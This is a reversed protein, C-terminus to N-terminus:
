IIKLGAQLREFHAYVDPDRLKLVDFSYHLAAASDIISKAYKEKYDLLIQFAFCQVKIAQDRSVQNPLKGRSHAAPNRSTDYMQIYFQIYSIGELEFPSDPDLKLSESWRRRLNVESKGPSKPQGLIGEVCKTAEVMASNFDSIATTVQWPEPEPNLHMREHGPEGFACYVCFGHVQFSATLDQLAVYFKEDRLLLELIPLLPPVQRHRLIVSHPIGEALDPRLLKQDEAEKSPDFFYIWNYELDIWHEYRRHFRYAMSFCRSFAKWIDSSKVKEGAEVVLRNSYYLIDSEPTRSKEWLYVKEHGFTLLHTVPGQAEQSVDAQGPSFRSEILQGSKWRLTTEHSLEVGELVAHRCSGNPVDVPYRLHEQHRILDKLSCLKKSADELEPTWKRSERYLRDIELELDSARAVLDEDVGPDVLKTLRHKRGSYDEMRYSRLTRVEGM